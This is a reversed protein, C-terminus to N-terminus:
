FFTVETPKNSQEILKGHQHVQRQEFTTYRAKLRDMWEDPNPIKQIQKPQESEILASELDKLDQGIHDMIQDVRDQFQLNVIVEDIDNKITKHNERLREVSAHLASSTKNFDKVIDNAIKQSEQVMQDEEAHFKEAINTAHQIANDVNRVTESIRKGTSASETSLKRVEDAVVSFGRGNEGARAAEISANLALLNTQEAIKTVQMAMARLEKAYSAVTTIESQLAARFDQTKNLTSTIKVLGKEAKEITSFINQDDTDNELASNSDMYHTLNGFRVILVEIAEKIQGRVLGVHRGWLPALRYILQHLKQYSLCTENLDNKVDLYQASEIKTCPNKFAPWLLIAAMVVSWILGLLPESMLAICLGANLLAMLVAITPYYKDTRM